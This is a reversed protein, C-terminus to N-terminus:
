MFEWTSAYALRSVDQGDLVFRLSSPDVPVGFQGSFAPRPSTLVSQDAPQLGVIQVDTWPPQTAPQGHAARMNAVVLLAALSAIVLAKTMELTSKM